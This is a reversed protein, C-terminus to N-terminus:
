QLGPAMALPPPAAGHSDFSITPEGRERDLRGIEEMEDPPIIWRVGLKRQLEFIEQLKAMKELDEEYVM